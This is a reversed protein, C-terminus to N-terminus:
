FICVVLIIYATLSTGLAFGLANKVSSSFHGYFKDAVM